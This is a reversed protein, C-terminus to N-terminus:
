DLPLVQCMNFICFCKNAWRRPCVGSRTSVFHEATAHEVSYKNWLSIKKKGGLNPKQRNKNNDNNNPQKKLSQKPNLDADVILFRVMVQQSLGDKESSKEQTNSHCGM